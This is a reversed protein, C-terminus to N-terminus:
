KDGDKLYLVADGYRSSILVGDLQGIEDVTLVNWKEIRFNGRKVGIPKKYCKMSHSYGKLDLWDQANYMAYFATGNGNFEIKTGYTFNIKDHVLTGKDHVLQRKHNEIPSRPM